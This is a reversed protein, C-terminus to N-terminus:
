LIEEKKSQQWLDEMEEQSFDILNGGKDKAQQEMSQFRQTFKQNTKELAYEPDLNAKRSWNILSFLLDGLENQKDGINKEAELEKLEENVKQWAEKEDKFDFGIAAAKKQIIIAKKISPASKPVGSLISPKKEQNQKIQEWNKSVEEAKEAKVSGYIHPHRRILKQSLRQIITAINQEPNQESLIKAYFLLHLLM